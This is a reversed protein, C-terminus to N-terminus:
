GVASLGVMRDRAPNCMRQHQAPDTGFSARIAHRRIWYDIQKARAAPNRVPGSGRRGGGENWALFYVRARYTANGVCPPAPMGASCTFPWLGWLEAVEAGRPELVHTDLDAVSVIWGARTLYM